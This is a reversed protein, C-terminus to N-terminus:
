QRMLKKTYVLPKLERVKIGEIDKYPIEEKTINRFIYLLGRLRVDPINKMITFLEEENLTFLDSYTIYGKNICHKTIDALLSMMYNDERSHCYQDILKSNRVVMDAVDVSHFGIEEKGYENVFVDMDNVIDHIDNSEISKTWGIGTLIVGDIRDACMLPRPSDVIPYKKFDIVEDLGIGDEKLCRKLYDDRKLIDGTYAETSEQTLYDGNMYDIVHSFCPTAIDHFLGAVTAKKDHTLKYTLLAVTLSHDYRTIKERFDYIDKSAYDMGCFYGVKKLRELNSDLLYKELFSPVEGLLEKYYELLMFDGHSINYM